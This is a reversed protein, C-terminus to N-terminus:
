EISKILENSDSYYYDNYIHKDVLGFVSIGKKKAKILVDLIRPQNRVGYIAFHIINNAGDISNLLAKGM